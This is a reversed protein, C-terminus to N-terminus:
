FIKEPNLINEPDFVSKIKKMFSIEIESRSYGLYKRKTYGIGHEGSIKGGLKKVGTFIQSVIKDIDVDKKQIIDIHVNGDGIHGFTFIYTGNEKGIEKTFKILEPISSVPVVVDEPIITGFRDLKEAINRRFDLVKEKMNEEEAVLIEKANECINSIKDYFRDIKGKDDDSFIIILVSGDPIQIEPSYEKLVKVTESDIFEIADPIIGTKIIEISKETADQLEDFVLLLITEYLKKRIFRIIIKTFIGLTGESGIMLNLLSYGTADKLNKGGLSILGDTTVVDLGYVWNRTVGYKLCKPGGANTATNGGITSSELSSPDPPYFYGYKKLFNNIDSTIMGPEVVLFHNKEDFDIIKNMKELSIVVGGKVPLPGGCRSTGGGRPTIPFKFEGCLSVMRLIEEEKEPIFVIDPYFIFNGPTEDKSYKELIDKDTIIKKDFEEEIIKIIKEKM